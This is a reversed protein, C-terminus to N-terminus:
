HFEWWQVMPGSRNKGSGSATALNRIQSPSAIQPEISAMQARFKALDEGTIAMKSSLIISSHLCSSIM